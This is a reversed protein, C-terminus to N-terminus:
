SGSRLRTRNAALSAFAMFFVAPAVLATEHGERNELCFLDSSLIRAKKVLAEL